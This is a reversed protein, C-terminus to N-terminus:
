QNQNIKFINIDKIPKKIWFLMGILAPITNLFLYLLSYSIALEKSIGILSFLFILSIDRTGLGSVSIPLSIIISTISICVIVYLFSIQINLIIALVYMHFFYFMWSIIILIFFVLLKGLRINKIENILDLFHAKIQEKYKQPIFYSLFAYILKRVLRKNFLLFTFVVTSIIILTNIWIVEKLFYDIFVYMSIYSALLMFTIDSARDIVVTAFSRILNHGDNKLYIVRVLDGVRAPTIQAAFQGVSYMFFCNWLSYKIKMIKMIYQWAYSKIVIYLIRMIVIVSFWFPNISKIISSVEKLDLRSLIFIFLIIGILGLLKKKIRM